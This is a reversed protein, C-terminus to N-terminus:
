VFLEHPAKGWGKHNERPKVTVEPMHRIHNKVRHPDMKMALAVVNYSCGQHKKIYSLIREMEKSNNAHARHNYDVKAKKYLEALERRTPDGKPLTLAIRKVEEVINARTIYTM